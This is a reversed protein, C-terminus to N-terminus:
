DAKDIIVVGGGKDAQTVFSVILVLTPNIFHSFDAATNLILFFLIYTSM